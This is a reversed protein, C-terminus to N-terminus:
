LLTWGDVSARCTDGYVLHPGAGAATVHLAALMGPRIASHDVVRYPYPGSLEEVIIAPGLEEGTRGLADNFRQALLRVRADPGHARTIRSWHGRYEVAVSVAYEDELSRGTAPGPSHSAHAILVILDEAGAARLSTELRGVLEHDRRGAGYGIESELVIRAIAVSRRRMAIETDDLLPCELAGAEVDVLELHSNMLGAHMDFPLGAEDLIGIRSWNREAALNELDGAFNKCSRVDTIPTVSQIWQYVRPSLGCLLTTSGEIGVVLLARNFYPMFNQLSRAPTSRWLDSYVVGAPLGRRGLVERFADIRTEFVSPPVEGKDWTILGRKM